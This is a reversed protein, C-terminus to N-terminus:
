QIGCVIKCFIFKISKILKCHCNLINGKGGYPGHILGKSIFDIATWLLGITDLEYEFKDKSSCQPSRDCGCMQSIFLGKSVFLGTWKWKALRGPNLASLALIAWYWRKKFKKAVFCQKPFLYTFIVKKLVRAWWVRTGWKETGGHCSSM